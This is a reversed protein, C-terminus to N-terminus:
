SLLNWYLLEQSVSISFHETNTLSMTKIM